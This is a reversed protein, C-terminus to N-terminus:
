YCLGRTSLQGPLWLSIAPIYTVLALSILLPVLWPLIAMTTREVSLKAVRALVFLVLGRGDGEMEDWQSQDTSLDLAFPSWQSEEWRRYLTQPDNLQVDASSMRKMHGHAFVTPAGVLGGIVLAAIAGAVPRM